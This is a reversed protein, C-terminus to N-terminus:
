GCRRRYSDYVRRTDLERLSLERSYKRSIENGEDDFLIEKARQATKSGRGRETGFQDNYRSIQLGSRKANVNNGFNAATYLTFLGGTQRQIGSREFAYINRRIEDLKTENYEDIELVRTIVPAEISGKMYSIKNDVDEGIAIM